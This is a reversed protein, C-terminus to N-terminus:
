PREEGAAIAGWISEPLIRVARLVLLLAGDLRGVSELLSAGAPGVVSPVDALTEPDLARTGLVAEVAMAIVRDAVRLTVWREIPRAGDGGTLRGLLVVPTPTGRVIALGSVYPPSGALPEVPLPRMTEIVHALPIAYLRPGAGVIISQYRGSTRTESAAV